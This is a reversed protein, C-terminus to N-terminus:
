HPRLPPVVASEGSPLDVNLPQKLLNMVSDPLPKDTNALLLAVQWIETQNLTQSFAPMGILRIGNEM